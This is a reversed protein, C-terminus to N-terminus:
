PKYHLESNNLLDSKVTSVLGEILSQQFTPQFDDALQVSASYVATTVQKENDDFGAVYVTKNDAWYKIDVTAGNSLTISKSLVRHPSM